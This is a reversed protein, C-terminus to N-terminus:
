HSQIAHDTKSPGLVAFSDQILCVNLSYSDFGALAITKYVAPDVPRANRNRFESAKWTDATIFASRFHQTTIMGGRLM